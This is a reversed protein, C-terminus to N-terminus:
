NEPNKADFTRRPTIQINDSVPIFCPNVFGRM